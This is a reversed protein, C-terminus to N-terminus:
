LFYHILLFVRQTPHARIVAFYTRIAINKIKTKTKEVIIIILKADMESKQKARNYNPVSIDVINIKLHKKDINNTDLTM